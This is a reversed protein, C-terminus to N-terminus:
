QDEGHTIGTEVLGTDPTAELRSDGITGRKSSTASFQKKEEPLNVSFTYAIVNGDEDTQFSTKPPVRGQFVVDWEVTYEAWPENVLENNDELFNEAYITVGGNCGLTQVIQSQNSPGNRDSTCDFWVNAPYTISYSRRLNKLMSHKRYSARQVIQSTSSPGAGDRDICSHVVGSGSLNFDADNQGVAADLVNAKPKINVTVRNVRFKDYIMANQQFQANYYISDQGTGLLSWYAYIYNAVTLGQSPLLTGETRCRQFFTDMGKKAKAMKRNGIVKKAKALTKKNMRAPRKAGRKVM